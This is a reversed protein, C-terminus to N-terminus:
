VNEYPPAPRQDERLGAMIALQEEVGSQGVVVSGVPIEAERPAPMRGVPGGRHGLTGVFVLYFDVGAPVSGRPDRGPLHEGSWVRLLYLRQARNGSVSELRGHRHLGGVGIDGHPAFVTGPPYETSSRRHLKSSWRHRIPDARLLTPKGVTPNPSASMTM